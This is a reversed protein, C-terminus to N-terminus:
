QLKAATIFREFRECWVVVAPYAATRINSPVPVQFNTFAKINAIRVSRSKMAMFDKETEVFAPTLYLKYDPGPSVQGQLTFFQQGNKTSLIIKGEGWHLSDSGELDRRFIGSRDAESSVMAAMEDSIGEEEILIPLYYVGLAFGALVGVIGGFGVGRLFNKM